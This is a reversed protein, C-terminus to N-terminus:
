QKRKKRKHETSILESVDGTKEEEALLLVNDRHYESTAHDIFAKPCKKWNRFGTEIFTLEKYSSFRNHKKNKDSIMCVYCFAADKEANYHLWPYDECWHAHFPRERSGIKTKPFVYTKPPHFKPQIVDTEHSEIQRKTEFTQTPANDGDIPITSESQPTEPENQQNEPTPENVPPVVSTSSEPNNQHLSFLQTISHCGKSAKKLRKERRPMIQTMYGIPLLFVAIECWLFLRLILSPSSENIGEHM